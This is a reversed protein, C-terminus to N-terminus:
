VALPIWGHPPAEDLFGDPDMVEASSGSARSSGHARAPQLLGVRRPCPGRWRSRRSARRVLRAQADAGMRQRTAEADLGCPILLLQRSRCGCPTGPRKSRGSATVVSSSWCGARRVQEPVWHGAAFPPDLWELCVVRRPAARGPAARPGPERHGGLRERLIEVPRGGRGRRRGDRRGDLHHEPHGRDLEARPQRRQDGADIRRVAESVERYSVACVDCLEQTLILDPEAAALADEDLRYIRRAATCSLRARSRPHSPEDARNAGADSTM